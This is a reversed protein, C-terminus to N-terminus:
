YQAAPGGLEVNAGTPKMGLEKALSPVLHEIKGGVATMLIRIKPIEEEPVRLYDRDLVLFDAFKGPELSGLVNEKLVYYAGWITAMKLAQERSIRQNPAYVKGDQAPRVSSWYLEIFLNFDTLEIPKDAEIGSMIKSEVLAKRPVVMDLAKEGYDRLWRPPDQYIYFSTGGAIVGLNAMRSLQDPRPWGNMHDGIVHRRARIQELSLRGEKSAQEILDLKRDVDVDGFQHSGVLRGGEKVVKYLANWVPGGKSYAPQCREGVPPMILRSGAPRPERPPLSMCPGGSEGTGYYWMYDTGTGAREALDAILFPNEALREWAKDPINGWGWALRGPMRGTRDLQGFAQILKTHNYLFTGVSTQGLSTWWSLELRLAEALLDPRDKLIIEHEALRYIEPDRSVGTKEEIDFNSLGAVEDADYVPGEKRLIEIAKQNLMVKHNQRLIVPRGEVLVPNNPAGEDLQQKTILTAPWYVYPDEPLVDIDWAFVIRIWVGPKAAKVAEAFVGPFEEIQKKPAGTLYRAVVVDEPIIEKKMTYRNVRYWDQPHNHVAIFGPVVMRGKLDMMRTQPGALPKIEQDSGVALIKGDRIAMAQAIAGVTSSFSSDDVTLVKANYFIMQPYGLKAAVDVRQASAVGASLFLIGAISRVRKM